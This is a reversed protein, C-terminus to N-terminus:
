GCYLRPMIPQFCQYNIVAYQSNFENFISPLAVGQQFNMIVRSNCRPFSKLSVPSRSSVSTNASSNDSNDPAIKEFVGLRPIDKTGYSNLLNSYFTRDIQNLTREDHRFNCRSGYMCFGLERFSNCDKQKYKSSNVEKVFLEDKGHAFRCKNGYVCFNKDVWSKCMETKYKPDMKKELKFDVYENANKKMKPKCKENAPLIQGKQISM